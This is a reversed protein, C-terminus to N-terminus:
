TCLIVKGPIHVCLKSYLLSFFFSLLFFFTPGLFCNEEKKMNLPVIFFFKFM